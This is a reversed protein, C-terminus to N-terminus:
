TQLVMKMLRYILGQTLDIQVVECGQVLRFIYVAIFLIGTLYVLGRQVRPSIREWFCVVIGIVPLLVYLPHYYFAQHFDLHVVAMIARSMGCGACSIGTLFRIPCGIHTISVFIWYVFLIVVVTIENKRKKM